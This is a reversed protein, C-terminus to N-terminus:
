PVPAQFKPLGDTLDALLPAQADRASLTPAEIPWDIGIAPDDWRVVLECEPAYVDSCKYEFDARESTVAFGHAFGAPVFLQHQTEATLEFGVWQGFHPSGVRVDVAVDFVTGELVRVLKAQGRPHQLHLGRLTGRSSRSHNDQVFRVDIGAEAYKQAHYTELFFGRADRHVDPEIRIVGPLRTPEFKV